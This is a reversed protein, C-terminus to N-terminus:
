VVADRPVVHPALAGSLLDGLPRALDPRNGYKLRRIADAIAGCYHFAAVVSASRADAREVTSECGRCFSALYAVPADCASCRAPAVLTAFLERAFQAMSLATWM